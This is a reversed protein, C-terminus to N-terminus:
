NASMGNVLWSFGDSTDAAVEFGTTSITSKKIRVGFYGTGGTDCTRKTATITYFTDAMEIPLTISHFSANTTAATSIGGMEVWGSLYKRYWTYNNNATPMQSAVVYDIVGEKFSNLTGISTTHGSVTTSLTNVSESINSVSTGLNTINTKITSIDGMDEIQQEVAEIEEMAADIKAALTQASETETFEAYTEQFGILSSKIDKLLEFFYNMDQNLATPTLAVTPQYDIIRNLQLQREITVIDTSKPATAFHIHGGTFPFDNNGTGPICFVGYGTASTGNIKVVIDGKSFFRFTFYFDKNKGNGMFTYKNM